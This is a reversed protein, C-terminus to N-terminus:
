DYLFLSSQCLNYYGLCMLHQPVKAQLFGHVVDLAVIPPWADPLIDLLVALRAGDALRRLGASLSHRSKQM